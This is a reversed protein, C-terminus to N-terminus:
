GTKAKYSGFHQPRLLDKLALIASTFLDILFADM